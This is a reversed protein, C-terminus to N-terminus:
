AVLVSEEYGVVDAQGNGTKDETRFSLARIEGAGRLLIHHTDGTVSYGAVEWDKSLYKHLFEMDLATEMM